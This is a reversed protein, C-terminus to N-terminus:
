KELIQQINESIQRNHGETRTTTHLSKRVVSVLRWLYWWSNCIVDNARINTQYISGPMTNMYHKPFYMAYRSNSQVSKNGFGVDALELLMSNVLCRYHEVGNLESSYMWEIKGQKTDAILKTILQKVEYTTKM